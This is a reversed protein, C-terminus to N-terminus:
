QASLLIEAIRAAGQGDVLTKERQSYQLRLNHDETLMDILKGIQQLTVEPEKHFAGGYGAVNERGVYETLKEQNEAYSFCVFPVGIASLEYM